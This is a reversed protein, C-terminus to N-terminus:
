HGPAEPQRRHRAAATPRAATASTPPRRATSTLSPSPPKSKRPATNSAPKSRGAKCRWARAGTATARATPRWTPKWARAGARTSCPRPASSGHPLALWPTTASRPYSTARLSNDSDVSTRESQRQMRTHRLGAWLQWTSGIRLADRVFLETSREDRNTNADLFGASPPSQLSGDIHGAGAIDFVQDQFRGPLNFAARRSGPCAPAARHAGPGAVAMQLASSTRREHDSVYQWYTFSGDPAFRDCWQACEYNADYVGYPFATRDDSKLRQQMAQAHLALHRGPAAALRLSATDGDM